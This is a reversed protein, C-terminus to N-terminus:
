KEAKKERYRFGRVDRYWSSVEGRTNLAFCNSSIHQKVLDDRSFKKQFAVSFDDFADLWGYEPSLVVCRRLRSGWAHIAVVTGTTPINKLGHTPLIAVRSALRSWIAVFKDNKAIIQGAYFGEFCNSDNPFNESPTLPNADRDYVHARLATLQKIQRVERVQSKSDSLSAV